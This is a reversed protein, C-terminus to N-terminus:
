VENERWNRLQNEVRKNSERVIEGLRERGKRRKELEALWYKRGGEYVYSRM